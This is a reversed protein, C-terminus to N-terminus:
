KQKNVSNNGKINSGTASLMANLDKVDSKIRGDESLISKIAKTSSKIENTDAMTAATKEELTDIRDISTNGEKIVSTIDKAFAQAVANISEQNEEKATSNEDQAEELEKGKEAEIKNIDEATAVLEEKIRVLEKVDNKDMAQKFEEQLKNWKNVCEEKKDDKEDSKSSQGESLETAPSEVVRPEPIEVEEREKNDSEVGFMSDLSSNMDESNQDEAEAMLNLGNQGISDDTSIPKGEVSNEESGMNQDVLSAIYSDIDEGVAAKKKAEAMASEFENKIETIDIESKTDLNAAEATVENVAIQEGLIPALMNAINSIKSELDESIMIPRKSEIEIANKRSKKIFKDMKKQVKKMKRPLLNLKLNHEIKKKNYEMKLKAQELKDNSNLMEEKIAKLEEEINSVEERYERKEAHLTAFSDHVRESLKAYSKNTLKVKREYRDKANMYGLVKSYSRFLYTINNVIGM